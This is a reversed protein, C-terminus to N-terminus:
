SRMSVDLSLYGTENTSNALQWSWHDYPLVARSEKLWGLPVSALSAISIFPACRIQRMSLWALTGVRYLSIPELSGQLAPRFPSLWNARHREELIHLQADTEGHRQWPIFSPVLEVCYGITLALSLTLRDARFLM